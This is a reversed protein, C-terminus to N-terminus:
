SRSVPRGQSADYWSPRRGPIDAPRLWRYHPQCGCAADASRHEVRAAPGALVSKVDGRQSQRNQANVHSGRCQRDGPCLGVVTPDLDLESDSVRESQLPQAAPKGRHQVTSQEVSEVAVFSWCVHRTERRSQPVPRSRSVSMHRNFPPQSADHINDRLELPSPLVVAPLLPRVGARTGPRRRANRGQGDVVQRTQGLGRVDQTPTVLRDTQQLARVLSRAWAPSM